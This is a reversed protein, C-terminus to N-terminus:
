ASTSLTQTDGRHITESAASQLRGARASPAPVGGKTRSKPVISTNGTPRLAADPGLPMRHSKFSSCPAPRDASFPLGM